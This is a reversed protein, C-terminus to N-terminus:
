ATHPSASPSPHPHVAADSLEAPQEAPSEEKTNTGPINNNTFCHFGGSSQTLPSSLACLPRSEVADRRAACMRVHKDRTDGRDM